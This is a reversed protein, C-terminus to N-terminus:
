KNKVIQAMFEAECVIKDGVFAYGKMMACGRRLETMFSVHFLLTDGPVVKQRFRVNDIKMFYTSYREPEDVTNLVLLGGVQAMAEVMLVGPMVPEQPFHGQFFPENGTINKLGVIHSMGMDIVKDVLLFPYRHPLLQRIRNVDMVPPNNPNYIPAQCEQRRIERRVKKAFTTNITHGPKTAIVRGHMPRGILAIDGIVDLLKHRAPENKFVLPKNNIYGLEDASHRPAGMLTSIRDLDDQTMPSDYIVIANDLDGGKILNNHLLPEIERVFVFTRSAAIEDKFRDFSQMTAFQNGLIASDYDIMTDISFDPDPLVILSAGTNEDKLEIKQRVVYFDKDEEQEVFGVEEIKNVWEIASGNLIPMEPGNIQILCNDIGYAYLSALVHEVTSITAGNQSLATGRMTDVVNEALADITPQGELDTRQFKYGHNVEAPLLTATVSVGTHLG